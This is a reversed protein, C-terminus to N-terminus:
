WARRPAGCRLCTTAPRCSAARSPRGGTVSVTWARIRVRRGTRVERFLWVRGPDAAPVFFPTKALVRPRGRLDDRIATTGNGVYVLWRGAPALLPQFDGASIAPQASSRIRGTGLNEFHAPPGGESTFSAPGAPWMLLSTDTGSVLPDETISKAPSPGAVPRRAPQGARGSRGGGLNAVVGATGGVLAAVVIAVLFQRRRQRRRAERILDEPQPTTGPTRGPPAITM